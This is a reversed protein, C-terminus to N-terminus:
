LTSFLSTNCISLDFQSGKKLQDSFPIKLPLKLCSRGRWEVKLARSSIAWWWIIRLFWRFRGDQLVQGGWLGGCLMLCTFPAVQDFINWACPTEKLVFSSMKDLLAICFGSKECVLSCFFKKEGKEDELSFFWRWKWLFFRMKIRLFSPLTVVWFCLICFTWRFRLCEM